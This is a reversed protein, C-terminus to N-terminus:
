WLDRWITGEHFVTPLGVLLRGAYYFFLWLIMLSLALAMLSRVTPFSRRGTGSTGTQAILCAACLVQDEHETICERCFFRGCAPCRAVAERFGHNFCRQDSLRSM